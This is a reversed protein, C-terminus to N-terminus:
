TNTFADPHFTFTFMVGAYQIADMISFSDIWDTQSDKPIRWTGKERRSTDFEWCARKKLSQRGECDEVPRRAEGELEDWVRSWCSGFVDGV